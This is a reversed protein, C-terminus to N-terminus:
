PRARLLAWAAAALAILGLVLALPMSHAAPEGDNPAEIEPRSDPEPELPEALTFADLVEGATLRFTTETAEAISVVEVAIGRRSTAVRAYFNRGEVAIVSGEVREAALERPVAGGGGVVLYVIGDREIREYNHAHGNFVIDVGTEVFIPHYIVDYSWGSGHYADSSWVPHHFMVFKHRAAESLERRAFEQQELIRDARTVNTDLGVVVLDGWRFVWWQEDRLGEGPPLAFADYYTRSNKEHNGLVPLFPAALLMSEFSGFWHDWYLSHPTEVLDGVHLLFDFGGLRAADFAIASGISALRNPGEWQWQTDALVAFNVPAGSPPATRFCGIPSAFTESGSQVVVRYVYSSGPALGEVLAHIQGKADAEPASVSLRLTAATPQVAFSAVRAVELTAPLSPSIVWSVVVSDAGPAGTYPGRAFPPTLAFMPVSLAALAALWAMRAAFRKM